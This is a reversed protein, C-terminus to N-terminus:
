ICSVMNTVFLMPFYTYWIFLWMWLPHAVLLCKLYVWTDLTSWLAYRSHIRVVEWGFILDCVDMRSMHQARFSTISFWPSSLLYSSHNDACLRIRIVYKSPSWNSSMKYNLIEMCLFASMHCSFTEANNYLLFSGYWLVRFCKREIIPNWSALVLFRVM